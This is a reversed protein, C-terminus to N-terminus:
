PLIQDLNVSIKISIEQGGTGMDTSTPINWKYSVPVTVGPDIKGIVKTKEFIIYGSNDKVNVTYNGPINGINVVNVTLTGSDGPKINNGLSTPFTTVEGLKLSAAHMTVNVTQSDSMFAYVGVGFSAVLLILAIIIYLRTRM